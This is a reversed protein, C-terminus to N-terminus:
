VGNVAVHNKVTQVVRDAMYGEHVKVLDARTWAYQYFTEGDWGYGPMECERVAGLREMWRHATVHGEVSHAQVRHVGEAVVGPIGVHLLHSTVLRAAQGWRRTGVLWVRKCRRTIRGFGWAAVPVWASGADMRAVWGLGRDTSALMWETLAEPAFEGVTAVAEDRDAQRLNAMVYSVDRRNIDAIQMM